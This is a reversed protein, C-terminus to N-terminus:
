DREAGECGCTAKFYFKTAESRSDWIQKQGYTIVVVSDLKKVVDEGYVVNLGCGNDWSVIISGIDDVGKVTGRTGVPPAQADDMEVLEVRCDVPYDKRLKELIAKSIQM